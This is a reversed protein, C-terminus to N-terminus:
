VNVGEPPEGLALAIADPLSLERGASEARAFDQEGLGSRAEAVYLDHLREDPEHLGISDRLSAAAGALRAAREWDGSRVALAGFGEFCVAIIRKNALEEASALCERFYRESAEFDGEQYTVEGLNCLKYIIGHQHGEQRDLELGQEYLERARAFEDRHYALTGLNNLAVSILRKDGLTRSLGLMEEFYSRSAANEGQNAAVAGLGNLTQAVLRTDGAARGAALSEEYLSRARESDGTPWVLSAAAYLTKPRFPSSGPPGAQALAQELWGRGETLHGRTWWFRWLSSALRMYLEAEHDAAWRLAARLNDHEDELREFWGAQRPGVLEPEAQEALSHFYAAHRAQAEGAGGGERLRELAYERVVELLRFRPEGNSQDRLTLLSKDVLSTVGDLVELGEGDGAGCVAEAAELACGGAFVSLRNLLRQEEPELLDYSWSIAARMTQQRAPLDRPGGALIKLRDGLRALIAQPPMLKVRAAALEIALPLGDVRRCVEAVAAANEEDFTFSAKAARAREVFLVVAPSNM